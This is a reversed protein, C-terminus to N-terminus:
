LITYLRVSPQGNTDKDLMRGCANICRCTSVGRDM